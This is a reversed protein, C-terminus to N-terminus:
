STLKEREDFEQFARCLIVDPPVHDREEYFKLRSLEEDSLMVTVPKRNFNGM